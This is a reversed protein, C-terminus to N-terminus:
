EIIVWNEMDLTEGRRKQYIPIADKKIYRKKTSDTNRCSLSYRYSGDFCKIHKILFMTDTSFWGSDYNEDDGINKTAYIKDFNDLSLSLKGSYYTDFNSYVVRNDKKLVYLYKDEDIHLLYRLYDKMEYGSISKMGAKNMVGEIIFLTDYDVNLAKRLDIYCSDSLEFNCNKKVYNEIKRVTCGVALFLSVVTMIYTKM